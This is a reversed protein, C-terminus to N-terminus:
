FESVVPQQGGALEGSARAALLDDVLHAGFVILLMFKSFFGPILLREHCGLGGGHRARDPYRQRCRGLKGMLDMHGWGHRM